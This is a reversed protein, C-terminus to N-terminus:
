ITLSIDKRSYTPMSSPRYGQRDIYVCARVRARACALLCARVCERVSVCVCVCVCVCVSESSAM